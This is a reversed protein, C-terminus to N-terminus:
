YEFGVHPEIMSFSGKYNPNRVREVGPVDLYVHLSVNPADPFAVGRHPVDGDFLVIDGVHLQAPSLMLAIASPMLGVELAAGKELVVWATRPM